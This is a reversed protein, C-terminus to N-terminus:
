TTMPVIVEEAHRMGHKFYQFLSGLKARQFYVDLSKALTQSSSSGMMKIRDTQQDLNFAMEQPQHFPSITSVDNVSVEQAPLGAISPSSRTVAAPTRGHGVNMSSDHGSPAQSQVEPQRPADIWERIVSIGPRRPDETLCEDNRTRCNRCSPYEADCKVKRRRCQNCALSLRARKAPPPLDAMHQCVAIM